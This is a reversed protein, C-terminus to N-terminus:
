NGDEDVVNPGYSKKRDQVYFDNTDQNLNNNRISLEKRENTKQILSEVNNSNLFGKVRQSMEKETPLFSNLESLFIFKILSFPFILGLLLSSVLLKSKISKLFLKSVV